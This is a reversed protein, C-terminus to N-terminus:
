VVSKLEQMWKSGYKKLPEYLRVKVEQLVLANAREAQGNARPHAVSAYCVEIGCSECTYWFENSTFTTGLNTIIRNPIGFRHMIEEIFEAANAASYKVMPKVVIWNSFKDVAVFLYECGGPAKALPEVM